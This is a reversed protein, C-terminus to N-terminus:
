SSNPTQLQIGGHEILGPSRDMEYDSVIQFEIAKVDRVYERRPSNYTVIVSTNGHSWNAKKAISLTGTSRVEAHETEVLGDLINTSVRHFIQSISADLLITGDQNDTEKIQLDLRYQGRSLPSDFTTTQTINQILVFGNEILEYSQHNDYKLSYCKDQRSASSNVFFSTNDSAVSGVITINAEPSIYRENTLRPNHPITINSYWIHLRGSVYWNHLTKPEGLVSKTNV